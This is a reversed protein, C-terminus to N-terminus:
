KVGFVEALCLAGVVEQVEVESSAESVLHEEIHCEVECFPPASPIRVGSRRM